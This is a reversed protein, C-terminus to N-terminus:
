VESGYTIRLPTLPSRTLPVGAVTFVIPAPTDFREPRAPLTGRALVLGAM